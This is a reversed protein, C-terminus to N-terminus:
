PEVTTSIKCVRIDKCKSMSQTTRTQAKERATLETGLIVMRAIEVLWCEVILPISLRGTRVRAVIWCDTQVGLGEDRSTQLDSDLGGPPDGM